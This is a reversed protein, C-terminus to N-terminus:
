DNIITSSSTWPSRPVGGYYDVLIEGLDRGGILLTSLGKPAPGGQDIFRKLRARVAGRRRARHAADKRVALSRRSASVKRDARPESQPMALTLM